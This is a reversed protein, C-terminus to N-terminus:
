IAGSSSEIRSCALSPPKGALRIESTFVTISGVVASRSCVVVASHDRRVAGSKRSLKKSQGCAAAELALLTQRAQRPSQFRLRGVLWHENYRQRFEELAAALGELTTFDKVWLLQEKLTRFFRKFCGSGEPERVFAPSSQAGSARIDNRHNERTFPFWYNHPLGV